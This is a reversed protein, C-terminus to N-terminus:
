QGHPLAPHADPLVPRRPASLQRERTELTRLVEQYGRELDGERFAGRSGHDAPRYRGSDPPLGRRRRAHFEQNCNSISSSQRSRRATSCTKCTATPATSNRSRATSSPTSPKWSKTSPSSNRRPPRWSKMQRSINRTPRNCSKMRPKWSKAHRRRTSRSRRLENELDSPDSRRRRAEIPAALPAGSAVEEFTIMFLAADRIRSAARRHYPRGAYGRWNSPFRADRGRRALRRQGTCSAACRVACRRDRAMNLVNTDPSGTPQELYRSLQGSFYVADGNEKVTVCAPRFRQLIIRELQKALNREDRTPRSRRRARNTRDIDALPFQVVPRPLSEKRQFIRHKKDVPRFLDGHATVNESPGLFLYGGRRLAYHFLPVMKEQLEARCLDDCQPLLDPGPAFFAPGQYFQPEFFHMAGASRAQGPLLQGAQHLFAGPARRSVHEAISEPYRGKRATELGREDIDTAFIQIRPANKSRQRM